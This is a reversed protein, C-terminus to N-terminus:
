LSDGRGTTKDREAPQDGDPWGKSSIMLYVKLYLM